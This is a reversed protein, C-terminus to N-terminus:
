LGYEFFVGFFRHPNHHMNMLAPDADAANVSVFDCFGFNRLHHLQRPSVLMRQLTRHFPLLWHRGETSIEVFGQMAGDSKRGLAFVLKCREFMQQQRQGVVAISRRHHAGAIDIDVQKAALKVFEDFVFERIQREFVALLCLRCRTELAHDLARDNM